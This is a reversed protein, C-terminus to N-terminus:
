RATNHTGRLSFGEEVHRIFGSLGCTLLASWAEHGPISAKELQKGAPQQVNERREDSRNGVSSVTSLRCMPSNKPFASFPCYRWEQTAIRALIHSVDGRFFGLLRNWGNVGTRHKGPDM